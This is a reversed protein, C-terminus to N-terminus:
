GGAMQALRDAIVEDGDPRLSATPPPQSLLAELDEGLDGRRLRDNGIERGRGYRGIGEVLLAQERFDGRGTYLIATGLAICESVIGYGPKTVVVDATKVLDPYHFSGFPVQRLHPASEGLGPEGLFIWESLRKLPTSDFEGLGFGGFSLLAVKKGDPIDLRRRMKAPDAVSRRSLLPVDETRRLPPTGGHFPLRLLLDGAAYSERVGAVVDDYGRIREGLGEYIWDWTFNSIGVSPIGAREAAPFALFPIDAAILTVGGLRLSATEDAVRDDAEALLARCARLTEEERMLLSDHQLVGFDLGREEVPVTPHLNARFFWPAANSVVEVAVRPHRLRLTQIVQCARSAHGLGHGTVYYRIKM